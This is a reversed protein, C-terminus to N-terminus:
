TNNNTKRRCTVCKKSATTLDLHSQHRFIKRINGHKICDIYITLNKDLWVKHFGSNGYMTTLLYKINEEQKFKANNYDNEKISSKLDKICRTCKSGKISAHKGQHMMVEGHTKCVIPILRDSGFRNYDIESLLSYDYQYNNRKSIIEIFDRFSKKEAIPM